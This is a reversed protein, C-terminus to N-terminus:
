RSNLSLELSCNHSRIDGTAVVPSTAEPFRTLCLGLLRSTANRSEKSAGSWFRM